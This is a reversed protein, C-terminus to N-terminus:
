NTSAIDIHLVLHPELNYPSRLTEIAVTRHYPPLSHQIAGCSAALASLLAADLDHYLHTSRHGPYLLCGTPATAQFISSLFPLSITQWVAPPRLRPGDM